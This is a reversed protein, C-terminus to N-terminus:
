ENLLKLIENDNPLKIVYHNSYNYECHICRLACLEFFLDAKNLSEHPDVLEMLDKMSMDKEHHLCSYSSLEHSSILCLFKRINKKIM